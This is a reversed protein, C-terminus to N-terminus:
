ELFITKAISLNNPQLPLVFNVIYEGGSLKNGVNDIKNWEISYYQFDYKEKPSLEGVVTLFSKNANSNWVLKGKKDSIEVRLRESSPFYAMEDSDKLKILFLGFEYGGDIKRVNPLLIFNKNLFNNNDFIIRNNKMIFSNKEFLSPNIKLISFETIEFTNRHPLVSRYPSFVLFQNDPLNFTKQSIPTNYNDAFYSNWFLIAFYDNTSDFFYYADDPMKSNQVSFCAQLLLGFSAFLVINIKFLRM